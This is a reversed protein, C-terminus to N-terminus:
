TSGLNIVHVYFLSQVLKIHTLLSFYARNYKPCLVNWDLNWNVDRKSLSDISKIEKKCLRYNWGRLECEHHCISRKLANTANLKKNTTFLSDFKLKVKVHSLQHARIKIVWNTHRSNWTERFQSSDKEQRKNFIEFFLRYIWKSTTRVFYTWTTMFLSVKFSYFLQHKIACSKLRFM